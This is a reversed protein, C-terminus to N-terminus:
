RPRGRAAARGRRAHRLHVPPRQAAGHALLAVRLVEGQRAGHQARVGQLQPVAGHPDVVLARAPGRLREDPLLVLAPVVDGHLHLAPPLNAAEEALLRAGGDAAVARGARAGVVVGAGDGRAEDERGLLEEVAGDVSVAVGRTAAAPAPRAARPPRPRRPAGAPPPPRGLPPPLHLVLLLVLLLILLGLRHHNAAPHEAPLPEGALAHLQRPLPQAGRRRLVVHRAHQHRLLAVAHDVEGPRVVLRALGEIRGAGRVDLAAPAAAAAAPSCVREVPGPVDEADPPRAHAALHLRDVEDEGGVVRGERRRGGDHRAHRQARRARQHVLLVRVLHLDVLAHQGLSLPGEVADVPGPPLVEGELDVDPLLERRAEVAARGRGEQGELGAEQGGDVVGPGRAQADLRGHGLRPAPAPGRALHAEDEPRDLRHGPLPQGQVPVGDVLRRGHRPLQLAPAGVAPEVHLPVPASAAPLVLLRRGLGGLHVRPLDQGDVGGMAQGEPARRRQRRLLLRAGQRREPGQRLLLLVVGEDRGHGEVLEGGVREEDREGHLVHEDEVAELGARVVAGQGRHLRVHPQHRM